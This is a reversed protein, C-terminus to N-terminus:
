DTKHNIVMHQNRSMDRHISYTKYQEAFTTMLKEAIAVSRHQGGTCGVAITIQSRGEERYKPILYALYNQTHEYFVTSEAKNFIYDSVDQDIGTKVRLEPDYFPNPLFRVDVVFDADMPIGHKFGFSMFNVSFREVDSEKEFLDLFKKRLQKSSLMSTDIKLDALQQLTAIMERERQITKTLSVNPRSLPHRRRSEKYRGLLVEQSADLFIIQTKIRQRQKLETIAVLMEKVSNYKFDMMLVVNQEEPSNELIDAFKLIFTPPLNDIVFYGLDEFAQEATTKGAGSMGTVLYINVSM